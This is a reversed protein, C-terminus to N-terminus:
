ITTTSHSEKTTKVELSDPDSSSTTDHGSFLGLNHIPNSQISSGDAAESGISFADATDVDAPMSQSAPTVLSSSNPNADDSVTEDANEVGLGSLATIISNSIQNAQRRSLEAQLDQNAAIIAEQVLNPKTTGSRACRINPNILTKAAQQVISETSSFLVKKVPRPSFIEEIFNDHLCTPFTTASSHGLNVDSAFIVADVSDYDIKKILQSFNKQLMEKIEDFDGSLLDAKSIDNKWAQQGIKPSVTRAGLSGHACVVILVNNELVYVTDIKM